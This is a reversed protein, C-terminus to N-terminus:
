LDLLYFNFILYTIAENYLTKIFAIYFFEQM